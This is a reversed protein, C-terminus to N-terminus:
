LRMKLMYVTDENDEVYLIRIVHGAGDAIGGDLTLAQRSGYSFRNTGLVTYPKSSIRPGSRATRLPDLSRLAIILGYRRCYVAKKRQLQISLEPACFCAEM